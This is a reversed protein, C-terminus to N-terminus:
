FHLVKTILLSNIAIATLPVNDVIASLLGLVVNGEVVRYLSPNHGLIVESLYNLVGITHLASVSLLIGIFFTLSAIDTRQLLRDINADLHTVKTTRLKIFEITFWVIGLGFLLGLYAPLGMVNMFVPFSFSLLSLGIILMEGRTLVVKLEKKNEFTTNTIKRMLLVTAVVGLILSPLIGQSIVTLADFKHAIWLMITTVDGIPSWAGGANALIVIGSAVILLNADKYFRRAIQIM